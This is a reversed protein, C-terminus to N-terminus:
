KKLWTEKVHFLHFFYTRSYAPYTRFTGLLLFTVRSLLFLLLSPNLGHTLQFDLRALRGYGAETTDHELERDSMNQRVFNLMRM